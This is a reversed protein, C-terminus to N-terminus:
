QASLNVVVPYLDVTGYLGLDKFINYYNEGTCNQGCNILDSFPGYDGDADDNGGIFRYPYAFTLFELFGINDNYKWYFSRLGKLESILDARKVDGYKDLVYSTIDSGSLNKLEDKNLTISVTNVNVINGQNNNINDYFDIVNEELGTIPNIGNKHLVFTISDSNYMEDPAQVYNFEINIPLGTVATSPLDDAELDEIYSLKIYIKKTAGARLYYNTAIPINDQYRIELDLYKKQENTFETKNISNLVADITGGNVVDVTFYYYDGPYHLNITCSVSLKDNSIVPATGEVSGDQVVVNNLYVNWSNGKVGVNGLINLNASLYAFGM